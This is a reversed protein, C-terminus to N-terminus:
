SRKGADWADVLTELQKIVGALKPDNYLNMTEGPDKALNYLTGDKEPVREDRFYIMKWKKTRVMIQRGAAVRLCTYENFSQDMESFVAPRWEQQEGRILPLLSRGAIGPIAKEGVLDLVTPLFDVLEVPEEIVKGAPLHKPWSFILPVSVTQEYFSVKKHIGHEGLQLGHDSNIVILTNDLEGKEELLDLIRGVQHDVWSVLGYYTGRAIQLEERTLHLSGCYQPLQLREFRSKSKLEEETPYPLKVRDPDIMFEPPVRIPVHPAHYSVRLFFPADQDVVKALTDLAASTIQAQQTNELPEDTTGGIIWRVQRRSRNFSQSPPFLQPPLLAVEPYTKLGPPLQRSRASSPGSPRINEWPGWHNKGVNLPRMGLSTLVAKFDIQSKPPEAPFYKPATHPPAGMAMDRLTHCYHGTLMSHRSPACVVCQTVATRFMVGRRAIRDVNPTKAWPRGYCGFADARCDDLMIWLINPVGGRADALANPTLFALALSAPLALTRM